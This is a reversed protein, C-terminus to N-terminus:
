AGGELRRFVKWSGWISLVFKPCIGPHSFGTLDLIILRVLVATRSRMVAVQVPIFSYESLLLGGRTGQRKALVQRYLRALEYM